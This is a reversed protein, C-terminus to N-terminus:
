AYLARVAACCLSDHKNLSRTCQFGPCIAMCMCAHSQQTDKLGHCPQTVWPSTLDMVGLSTEGQRTKDEDELDSSDTDSDAAEDGLDDAM